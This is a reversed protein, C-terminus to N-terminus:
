NILEAYGRCVAFIRVGVINFNLDELINCTGKLYVKGDVELLCEARQAVLVSSFGLVSFGSAAITQKVRSPV